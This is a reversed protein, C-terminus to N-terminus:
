EFWSKVKQWLSRNSNIINNITEQSVFKGRSPSDGTKTMVGSPSHEVDPTGSLNMLSHGVEHAGTLENKHSDRVEIQYNDRTQGTITYTTSGITKTGLDSVVEYSNSYDNSSLAADKRPNDSPIVTLNFSVSFAKGNANVYQGKQNNWFQVAKNASSLDEKKAYYIATVTISNHSFSLMARRGDPDIFKIPNWGCYAYPSIQPSQDALPDVSTWNYLPSAYYRAGFYDYGSEADREKGTFKYRENYGYPTQNALLQGYPLYHLYQIPKGDSGTIWSASGLHDSHRYFIEQEDGQPNCNDHKVALLVDQKNDVSLTYLHRMPCIYQLENPTNGAIDENQTLTPHEEQPYEFPYEKEYYINKWEQMLYLEHETKADAIYDPSVYCWGGAGISTALREGNAYYHKTYAEPTVTVYPNPYLVATDLKVYASSLINNIHTIDSTGTLKYVRNGYADYGYYGAYKIDVVARMRNEDDWDHFRVLGGDCVLTQSLNGNADWFLQTRTETKYDFIVRPQHTMRGNDYGFLVNEMGNISSCFNHGFRGALSYNAQFDYMFPNLLSTASVLRYQDDYKYDTAYVGGMSNCDPYSQEIRTINSVGDYWYDLNQLNCYPSITRLNTLRNRLPEYQYSASVNNGYTRHITRGQEDYQQNSVIPMVPGVLPSRFVEKLEGSTYYNYTVNDGDPYIINRIRGFSDYTFRTRFTYVNSETPMVIRRHSLRVNGMRDYYLRTSGAGDEYYAMRGASDYQYHVDNLPTRPYSIDTLKDFCYTYHISDGAGSMRATKISMLSGDPAYNWFTKGADPHKRSVKNGFMDYEYETTYNDADTVRAIEGIANYEYQTRSNDMLNKTEITWGQPSYLTQRVVGNEDRNETLLRKHMNDDNAFHYTTRSDTSDPHMLYTVRNLVDYEYNTAYPLMSTVDPEWLPHVSIDTIYPDYTKTPRYWADRMRWGDTVWEYHGNVYRWLKRQFAHGRADYISVDVSVLAADAAVKTVRPYLLSTHSNDSFDHYPQRYIYHVSFPNNNVIEDPAVIDILRGMRDYRWYMENGAPDCSYARMGFRLDYGYSHHEGFQNSVFTVHTKTLNDYQFRRWAWENNENCPNRLQYINGYADYQLATVASINRTIDDKIIQFPRGLSDYKVRNQRLVTSGHTVREYIPLSIMNYSTTAKYSIDKSWEDGSIAVDGYDAYHILNHHIDYMKDYQTVVQPTAEGEYYDTWYGNKGVHLEIDDCVDTQPIVSSNYYRTEHRHGIIPKNNEDRLLDSTKEGRNIYYTNEYEEELMYAHDDTTIVQAYGYDIREYNDYFPNAYSFDYIHTSSGDLSSYIIDEASTMDWTRTRHRVSPESLTYGISITQGTPNTVMTLLNVPRTGNKNYRVQLANDAIVQDVYGDGNVDMFETHGYSSSVNWPSTQIGFCFKIPILVLDFGATVGLNFGINATNSKQINQANLTQVAQFSAGDYYQVYINGSGDVSLLDNYGDGNIDIMRVTSQNQSTSSSFGGSISYQALSYDRLGGVKNIVDSIQEFNVNGALSVSANKHTSAAVSLSPISYWEETFSYGLNYQVRQHDADVMDPLGDANIDMLTTHTVDTGTQGNLGGGFGGFAMKSDKVNNSPVHEPRPRSASFGLGASSNTNNFSAPLKGGVSGIGGWPQSYQIASTGIFDPFGDGNLDMYDSTVNYSGFSINQSVGIGIPTSLGFSLSHQVSHTSKRITTVRQMGGHLTPIPSDYEEITESIITSDRVEQLQRSVSHLKQGISGTNGYALYHNRPYDPHMAVWRKDDALPDYIPVASFCSDAINKREMDSLSTDNLVTYANDTHYSGAHAYASDATMYEENRLVHIPIVSDRNIDNYAFWGWGKHLPGFLRRYLCTESHYFSSHGLHVDPFYHLTDPLTTGAGATDVTLNGWYDVSPLIHVKSWRPEYSLSDAFFSIHASDVVNAYFVTDLSSQAPLTRNLIQSNGLKASLQVSTTDENTCSLTIRASGAAPAVFSQDGSCLYDQSSNYLTDGSISLITQEWDVDDFRRNDLASLRFFIVDGQHVSLNYNASYSTYDDADIVHDYLMTVSDAVLRDEQRQVNRNWQIRLRVGDANRAQIRSFTTDPILSARSNIRLTDERDSVWVRVIDINPEDSSKTCSFEKQFVFITDNILQFSYDDGHYYTDLIDAWTVSSKINKTASKGAALAAYDIYKQKYAPQELTDTNVTVSKAESRGENIPLPKWEDPEMHGSPEPEPEDQTMLVEVFAEEGDDSPQVDSLLLTDICVYNLQCMLREDVQGDFTITKSCNNGHVEIGQVNDSIPSFTPIDNSNLLNIRVGEPTILDPLGDRNIDAFYIDTYSNSIVPNYSLNAGFDLQLGFTHSSSIERSLVDLGQITVPAAFTGNNMQRHYKVSHNSVELRDLLGDGNLDIMTAEVGGKSRSYSYNAGASFTTMAPNFGFGITVDGGINWGESRSSSFNVPSAVLTTCNSFLSSSTFADTYSFQTLSGPKIENSISEHTIESYLVDEDDIWHEDELQLQTNEIPQMCEALNDIGGDVKAISKLRSKHLSFDGYEYYFRYTTMPITENGLLVYMQCLVHNQERLLGLRADMLSDGRQKYTFGVQYYPPLNEHHNGTYEIRQIVIDNGTRKDNVYRMYNDFRDVVYTLAWYGINGGKTRLVSNEDITQTYPDYGYYYTVGDTTTVSWWYHSPSQGHRVAKSQNRLDRAYFRTARASRPTFSSAMHPLPIPNGADDHLLFPEGNILYAETEYMLNYRPVGWRTDVTVAPQSISWGVGLLGNGGASSYHLDLDPQLGHRGPPLPIPYSLEATGMNNAQPVAIMPIGVLPDPDPLDQMDTPVFAKNEPMEPVKIVANAFDTFHTTRSTITHAITDVTVRELRHWHQSDDCYYTYVDTEKYGQPIRTPDYALTLLAPSAESFHEGNPLLRFGDCFFSVNEMNSHMTTGEKYPVKSVHIDLKHKLSGSDAVLAFGDTQLRIPSYATFSYAEAYPQIDSPIASHADNPSYTDAMVPHALLSLTILSNFIFHKMNYRM